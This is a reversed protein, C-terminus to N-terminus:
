DSIKGTPPSQQGVLPVQILRMNDLYHQYQRKSDLLDYMMCAVDEFLATGYDTQFFFYICTQFM